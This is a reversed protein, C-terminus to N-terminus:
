FYCNIIRDLLIDYSVVNGHNIFTNASVEDFTEDLEDLEDFFNDAEDDKLILSEGSPAILKVTEGIIDFKYHNGMKNIEQNTFFNVM